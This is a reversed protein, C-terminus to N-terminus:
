RRDVTRPTSVTTRRDLPVTAPWPDKASSAVLFASNAESTLSPDSLASWSATSSGSVGGDHCHEPLQAVLKALGCPCGLGEPGPAAKAHLSSRYASQRERVKGASSSNPARHPPDGDDAVLPVDDFENDTVSEGLVHIVQQDGVVPGAVPRPFEKDIESIPVRTDVHRDIVQFGMMLGLLHGVECVQGPSCPGIPDKREVGVLEEEGVSHGHPSEQPGAVGIHNVGVHVGHDPNRRPRHRSVILVNEVCCRVWDSLHCNARVGERNHAVPIMPGGPYSLVSSAKPDRMTLIPAGLLDGALDSLSGSRLGARLQLNICRSCVMATDLRPLM